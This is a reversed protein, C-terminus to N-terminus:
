YGFEGTALMEMEQQKKRRIEAQIALTRPDDAQRTPVVPIQDFQGYEGGGEGGFFRRSANMGSIIGRSPASLMNIATRGMGGITDGIIGAEESIDSSLAGGRIYQGVKVFPDNSPPLAAPVIPAAGPKDFELNSGYAYPAGIQMNSGYKYPSLSMTSRNANPDGTPFAIDPVKSFQPLPATAGMDIAARSDLVKQFEEPLMMKKPTALAGNNADPNFPNPITGKSFGRELLVRQVENLPVKKKKQGLHDTEDDVISYFQPKGQKDLDYQIKGSSIMSGIENTRSDLAGERDDTIGQLLKAGSKPDLFHAGGQKYIGAQVNPALGYFRSKMAELPPANDPDHGLAKALAIRVSNQNKAVAVDEEAEGSEARRMEAYQAAAAKNYSLEREDNNRKHMESESIEEGQSGLPPNYIPRRRRRTAM